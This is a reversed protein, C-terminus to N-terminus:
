RAGQAQELRRVLQPLIEYLDGVLGLDAMKLIPAGADQNVAVVAGPNVIGSTHQTAGSIGFAVYLKPSVTRGTAGIQRESGIWGEDVLPRTAGVSAGLLDALRWLTQLDDKSRFGLGAAVVRDAESIDMTRPEGPIVRKRRIRPREAAPPVALSIVEPRGAFGPEPIGFAGGACTVFSPAAGQLRIGAVARGGYVPQQVLLSGSPEVQFGVVNVAVARRGRVALYPAAESALVSSSFLVLRPTRDRLLFSIGAVIAELGAEAEEISSLEYVREIGAAGLEQVDRANAKGMVVAATAANLPASLGQAVGCLERSSDTLREDNREIIAWIETSM